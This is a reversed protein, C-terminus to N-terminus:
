ATLGGDIVWEQGTVYRADDSALFAVVKAVEQPQGLRRMPIVKLVEEVIRSDMRKVMDTDIFGPAVCNVRITRKALEKALARTMAAIAAKSAGYNAQGPNGRIGSVSTINIISGSRQRLMVESVARCMRFTGELNTRLVDSWEEDSMRLFLTDRNMGANNVLVDIRGLEVAAAVLAEAGDKTGVDARFAIGGISAALAEAEATSSHYNVLVRAGRGALETAIAAGIGRSAGTVIAVRGELSGDRRQGDMPAEEGLAIV